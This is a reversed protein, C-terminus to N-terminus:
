RIFALFLLLYIWLADLFHWYIASLDLGQHDDPKYNGKGAQNLTVILVIIGSVVHLWHLAAIVYVWSVSTSSGVGTFYLGRDLLDKAGLVQFVLFVIGLLLAAWLSSVLKQQDGKAVASKAWIMAVSSLIIAVTAIYFPVPLAFELWKSEKLLASRSVVYGSTLGAFTMAISAMGIWLLPKRVKRKEHPLLEAM